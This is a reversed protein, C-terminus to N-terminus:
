WSWVAVEYHEHASELTLREPKPDSYRPLAYQDDRVTAWFNIIYTGHDARGSGPWRCSGDHQLRMKRVSYRIRLSTGLGIDKVV